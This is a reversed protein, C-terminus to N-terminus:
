NIWIIVNPINSTHTHEGIFLQQQFVSMLRTVYSLYQLGVLTNIFAVLLINPAKNKDRGRFFYCFNVSVNFSKTLITNIYVNFM